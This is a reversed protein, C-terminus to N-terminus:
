KKDEKPLDPHSLGDGVIAEPDTEGAMKEDGLTLIGADLQQLTWVGLEKVRTHKGPYFRDETYPDRLTRVSTNLVTCKGGVKVGVREEAGSWVAKAAEPDLVAAGRPEPSGTVSLAVGSATTPNDANADKGADAGVAANADSSQKNGGAMENEKPPGSLAAIQEPTLSKAM